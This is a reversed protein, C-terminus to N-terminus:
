GSGTVVTASMDGGVGHGHEVVGKEELTVSVTVKM